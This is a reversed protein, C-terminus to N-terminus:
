VLRQGCHKCYKDSKNVNGGCTPCFFVQRTKDFSLREVIGVPSSIDKFKRVLIESPELRFQNSEWDFGRYVYKIISKARGGVSREGLTVCVEIEELNAYMNSVRDINEKLDKLNM